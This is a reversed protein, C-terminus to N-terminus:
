EAIMEQIVDKASPVDRVLGASQGVPLLGADLNGRIWSEEFAARCFADNVGFEGCNIKKVMPTNLARVLFRGLNVLGTGTEACAIVAEKYRLHAVCERTAIFRTGVQVGDAGLALAARYGRRDAIGGAAIVPVSVADAVAPVLVFTSAGKYGQIGGSEMGEAIIGDVGLDEAKKAIDVTPVVCLAKIGRDHLYPLIAKPSGGSLTVVRVGEEALVDAFQPNMANMLMLNAGFPKDTLKKTARVQERVAAPDEQFATALVGFGGAESVAAVLEPNSIVGMAGQIVPYRCGLLTTTRDTM